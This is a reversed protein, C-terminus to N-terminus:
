SRSMKGAATLDISDVIRVVAPRKFDDLKESCAQKIRALLDARDAGERAVVAAEVLNGLISSTRASVRVLVVDDIALIVTEIEQPLVKRGGVNISGNARGLFYVRDGRQQVLDGTNIWGGEDALAESRGVYRQDCNVPRLLLFGAGDIRMELGTPPQDFYSAPFGAQGDKVSFGVGAETSAYIHTIRAEPFRATLAALVHPDAIEGGLSILRFNLKTTEKTMLLKRWMSPTASLANCDSSALERVTAELDGTHLPLILTSGGCLAQLFVQLGAFRTLDYLLGWAISRGAAKEKKLTRTLSQVTHGVLKPVGTTGSTPIIWCTNVEGSRDPPPFDGRAELCGAWTVPSGGDSDDWVIESCGADAALQRREVPSAGSPMILVREAVGDLALLSIALNRRDALALAVNKRRLPEVIAANESLYALVQRASVHVGGSIWLRSDPARDRVQSVLRM